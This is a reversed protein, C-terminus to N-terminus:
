LKLIQTKQNWTSLNKTTKNKDKQAAGTAGPLEWALPQIPAAAAPRCWLQMLAPDRAVDTVQAAARPSAPDKVWQDLGPISGVDDHISILNKLGQAM